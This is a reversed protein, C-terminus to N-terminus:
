MYFDVLRTVGGQWHEVRRKAIMSMTSEQTGVFGAAFGQVAIEVVTRDWLAQYYKEKSTGEKQEGDPGLELAPPFKVRRWGYRAVESWWEENTEDSTVIVPIRYALGAKVGVGRAHLEREVEEILREFTALDPACGHGPVGGRASCQQVFDGHRAHVAIYPTRVRDRERLAATDHPHYTRGDRDERFDPDISLPPLIERPIVELTQALSQRVLSRIRDSWHAHVGALNWAPSFNDKWEWPNGSSVRYLFDYCTLQTDPAHQVKNYKGPVTPRLPTSSLPNPNHPTAYSLLALDNFKVHSQDEHPNPPLIRAQEPIPTHSIDLNLHDPVFANDYPMNQDPTSTMWVSWCGIEDRGDAQVTGDGGTKGALGRLDKVDQWELMEKNVSRAWRDVDFFESVPHFGSLYFIHPRAVFPPLIPIRHPTLLSLYVLNTIAMFQNTFGGDGWGTIYQYEPRLNDRFHTTANGKLLKEVNHMRASKEYEWTVEEDEGSWRTTDQNEDLWTDRSGASYMGNDFDADSLRKPGPFVNQMRASNCLSNIAKNSIGSVSHEEKFNVFKLLLLFALIFGLLLIRRPPVSIM